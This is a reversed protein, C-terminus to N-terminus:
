PTLHIRKLITFGDEGVIEIELPRWGYQQRFSNAAERALQETKYEGGNKLGSSDIVM